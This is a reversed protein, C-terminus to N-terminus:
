FDLDLDSPDDGTAEPESEFYQEFTDAENTAEATSDAFPDDFPDDLELSSDPGDTLPEDLEGLEEIVVSDDIESPAEDAGPESFDPTIDEGEVPSEGLEDDPADDNDSGDIVGAGALSAIASLEPGGVDLDLPQEDLVAFADSPDGADLSALIPTLADAEALPAMDSYSALAQGFMDAPLDDFGEEALMAEADNSGRLLGQIVGRLTMGIM